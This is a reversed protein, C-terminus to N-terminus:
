SPWTSQWRQKKEEFYARKSCAQNLQTEYKHIKEKLFSNAELAAKLFSTTEALEHELKSIKEILTADVEEGM